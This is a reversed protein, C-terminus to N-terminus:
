RSIPAVSPAPTVPFEVVTRILEPATSPESLYVERPPGAKAYGHDRFWADLDDYVQGISDYPGVHLTSAFTGAPLETLKWGLPPDIPHSIPACIEVDFARGPAPMSLYIIFPPDHPTVRHAGLYGYVEGFSTSIVQGIEPIRVHVQKTLALAAERSRVKVEIDM